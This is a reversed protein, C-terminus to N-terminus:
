VGRVRDTSRGMKGSVRTRLQGVSIPQGQTQSPTPKMKHSPNEQPPRSSESNWFIQALREASRDQVGCITKGFASRAEPAFRRQKARRAGEEKPSGSKGTDTQSSGGDDRSAAEYAGGLNGQDGLIIQRAAERRTSLDYETKM